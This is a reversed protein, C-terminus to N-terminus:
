RSGAVSRILYEYGLGIGAEMGKERQSENNGIRFEINEKTVEYPKDRQDHNTGSM